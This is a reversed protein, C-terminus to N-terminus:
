NKRRARTLEDIYAQVLVRAGSPHNQVLLAINEPSFTEDLDWGVLIESLLEEDKRDKTGGLWELM